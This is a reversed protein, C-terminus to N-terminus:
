RGKSRKKLYADVADFQRKWMRLMGILGNRGITWKHTRHQRHPSGRQSRLSLGCLEGDSGYAPLVLRAPGYDDDPFLGGGLIHVAEAAVGIEALVHKLREPHVRFGERAEAYTNQLWRRYAASQTSRPGLGHARKRPTCRPLNGLNDELWKAADARTSMGQSLIVLDLLGGGVGCSFCHFLGREIDVSLSPTTDQHFPCLVNKGPSPLDEPALGLCCALVFPVRGDALIRAVIGMM